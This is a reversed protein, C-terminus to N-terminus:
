VLMVYPLPHEHILVKLLFYISQSICNPYEKNLSVNVPIILKNASAVLENDEQVGRTPAGKHGQLTRTFCHKYKSNM